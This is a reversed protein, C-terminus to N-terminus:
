ALLLQPRHKGLCSRLFQRCLWPACNSRLQLCLKTEKARLIGMPMALWPAAVWTCRRPSRTRAVRTKGQLGCPKGVSARAKQEDPTCLWHERVALVIQGIGKAMPPRRLVRWLRRNGTRRCIGMSMTRGRSMAAQVIFRMHTVSTRPRRWAAPVVRCDGAADTPVIGIAFGVRGLALRGFAVAAHLRKVLVGIELLHTTTSRLGCGM